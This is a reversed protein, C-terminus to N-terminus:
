GGLAVTDTVTGGTGSPNILLDGSLAGSGSLSAFAGTGSLVACSGSGPVLPYTSFDKALTNCRLVLTSHGDNSTLTRRTQSGGVTPSPVATFLAQVSETGSDGTSTTFTGAYTGVFPPAPPFESVQIVSTITETSPPHALASGSFMVSLVALSVGATRKM